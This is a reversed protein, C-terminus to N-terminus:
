IKRLEKMMESLVKGVEISFSSVSHKNEPGLQLLLRM